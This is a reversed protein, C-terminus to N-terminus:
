KIKKAQQSAQPKDLISGLTDSAIEDVKKYSHAYINMTTSTQSHGLRASVTKIDTNAAILLTASTHRLDHFRISPLKDTENDVTANYKEIIDKFTHYPTSQNMLRGNWQIFLHGDGEWADGLMVQLRHQELKYFMILDMVSKYLRIVRISTKNKPEKVITKGNVRATSKNINTM